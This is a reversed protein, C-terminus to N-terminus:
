SGVLGLFFLTTDFWEVKGDQEDLLNLTDVGMIETGPSWEYYQISSLGTIQM